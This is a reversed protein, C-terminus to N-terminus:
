LACFGCVFWTLALAGARFGHSPACASHMHAKASPMGTTGAGHPCAKKQSVLGRVSVRPLVRPEAAASSASSHWTCRTRGNRSTHGGVGTGEGAGGARLPTGLESGGRKRAQFPTAAAEAALPSADM